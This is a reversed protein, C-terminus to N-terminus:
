KRTPLNLNHDFTQFKLWTGFTSCRKVMKKEQYKEKWTVRLRVKIHVLRNDAIFVLTFLWVTIPISDFLM